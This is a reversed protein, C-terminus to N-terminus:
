SESVAPRLPRFFERVHDVLLEPEELAAFHGGRGEVDTWSTVNNSRELFKRIGRDHAFVIAGTPVGSSVPPPGGLGLQSYGVYASSEATATLWYLTINALLRDAGLVTDPLAEVPWTWAKFKDVMWALLGVPSDVLAPGIAAPRTAQIAIYGTEERLFTGIRRARDRELDTLGALEEETFQHRVFGGGNIHVGIVRDPAARGVEPSVASGIDGGQVGYRDYGLREMLEAWARGIRAADWGPDPVPGSFGFGPLSPIVLHFADGPDGGHAAPDTLPGIVDLFELISGPWGHTLVLPTAGDVVSRIHLFHITTGDIETIFGPYQRLRAEVARWDFRERWHAVLERLYAVPVGTDWGDGPLPAPFRSRELRAHLDELASDPVQVDFPTVSTM